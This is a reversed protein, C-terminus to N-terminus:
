LLMKIAAIVLAVALLPRMATVPLKKTGLYAGISGGLVACIAWLPLNQPFTGGKSLHGFLGSLSNVFIFLASTAAAEKPKMWGFFLLVPTLFIGGGVGTLGSLLGIGGGLCLSPILPLRNDKDQESKAHEKEKTPIILRIAALILVVALVPKYLQDPLKVLGGLFACPVSAIAFPWFRQGDFHGARWFQVFAILSVLINLALAAPKMTTPAVHLLAMSALYGSAGGHGVSAYLMAALFILAPLLTEPV